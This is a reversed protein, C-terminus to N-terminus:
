GLADDLRLTVSHLWEQGPVPGVHEVTLSYMRHDGDEAEARLTAADTELNMNMVMLQIRTRKDTGFRLSSEPAFPEGVRTVSELALARTSNSESVLVPAIAQAAGAREALRVVGVVASVCLCIFVLARSYRRPSLIAM